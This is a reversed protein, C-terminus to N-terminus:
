RALSSLKIFSRWNSGINTWSYRSEIYDSSRAYSASALKRAYFSSVNCQPDYELMWQDIVASCSESTQAQHGAFCFHRLGPGTAM